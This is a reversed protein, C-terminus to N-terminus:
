PVLAPTMSSTPFRSVNVLVTDQPRGSAFGPVHGEVGIIMVSPDKQKTPHEGSCFVNQNRLLYIVPRTQTPLDFLGGFRVESVGM